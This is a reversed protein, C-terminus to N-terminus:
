LPKAAATLGNPCFRGLSERLNRSMSSGDLGTVSGTAALRQQATAAENFLACAEGRRNGAALADGLAILRITLARQRDTAGPIRTLAARAEALATSLVAIAAENRGGVRLAEGYSLRTVAVWSALSQDEPDAKAMATWGGLSRELLPLSAATQGTAALSSGLNWQQRQVAWRLAPQDPFRAEGAEAQALATRYGAVAGARDDAYYRAEAALDRARMQRLWGALDAPLRGIVAQAHATAAPYDGQWQAIESRALLLEERLAPPPSPASAAAAALMAPAKALAGDAAAHRAADILIAARVEGAAASRDAAVLALAKDLAARAATRDRLSPGDTTSQVRALLRYAQAAELRLEPSADPLAAVKGLMVAAEQALRARLQVTGPQKELRGSLAAVQSRALQRVDAVRERAQQQGAAAQRWGQWVLVAAVVLLVAALVAAAMVRPHGSTFAPESALEPPPEAEASAAALEADPASGSKLWAVLEAEYAFVAARAEGPVRRIPLGRTAEWRKVTREDVSFWRGIEKWSRLRGDGNPANAGNHGNASMM